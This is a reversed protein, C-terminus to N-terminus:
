HEKYFIYCFSGIRSKRIAQSGKKPRSWLKSPQIHILRQKLFIIIAYKAYM